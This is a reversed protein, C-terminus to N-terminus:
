PDYFLYFNLNFFFNSMLILYRNPHLNHGAPSPPPKHNGNQKSGALQHFSSEDLTSNPTFSQSSHDPPRIPASHRQEQDMRRQYEACLQLIEDLRAREEREQEQEKLREM